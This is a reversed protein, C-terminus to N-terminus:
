TVIVQQRRTFGGGTAIVLTPGANQSNFAGDSAVQLINPDQSSWTISIGPIPNGQKDVAYGTLNGRQGAALQGPPVPNIVIDAVGQSASRFHGVLFIGALLASGAVRPDTVIRELGSGRPRGPAIFVTPAIRILARAWDHPALGTEFSDLVQSAAVSAEAAWANRYAMRNAENLRSRLSDLAVKTELDLSRVESRVGRLAQSPVTVGPRQPAPPPAPPPSPRRQQAQRAMMIQQQRRRRADYGYGEGWGAEGAAEGGLAEGAAESEAESAEWAESELAEIAAESM